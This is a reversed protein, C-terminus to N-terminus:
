ADPRDACGPTRRPPIPRRWQALVAEIVGAVRRRAENRRVGSMLLADYSTDDHRVAARVAATVAGEDLSRGAASRGVRGSGRLSTHLAVAEARAQPCSPFLRLIEATLAATFRVDEAARRAADRERRRARADADALCAAEARLLAQEEVLIGQREYRTRRSNRRLVVAWLSSAERARRTLAANGRPLYSLHGLDACDLCYPANYELVLLPLPGNHCETCHLRPRRPQIVVVPPQAGSM